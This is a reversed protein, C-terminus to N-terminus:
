TLNWEGMKRAELVKYMNSVHTTFVEKKLRM